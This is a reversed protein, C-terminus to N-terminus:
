HRGYETIEMKLEVGSEVKEQGLCSDDTCYNLQTVERRILGVGAAYVESRTDYYVIRDENNEQEVTATEEFTMGGVDVKKGVELLVYEDEGLTNWANGDWANGAVVPFVIRVFPVNGESIILEDVTQRASWTDMAEWVSGPDARRSRHIVYTYAGEEGSPFSDVVETMVQYDMVEPPLSLTYRVEHVNYVHYLGQHLPFYDTRPLVPAPEEDRCGAAVTFVM